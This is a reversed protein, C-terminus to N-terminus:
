KCQIRVFILRMNLINFLHYYRLDGRTKDVCTCIQIIKACIHCFDHVGLVKPFNSVFHLGPSSNLFFYKSSQDM